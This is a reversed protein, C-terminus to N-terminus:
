LSSADLMATRVFDALGYPKGTREAEQWREVFAGIIYAYDPVTLETVFTVRSLPEVTTRSM